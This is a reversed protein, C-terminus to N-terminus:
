VSVTIKRRVGRLDMEFEIEDFHESVRYVRNPDGVTIVTDSIHRPLLSLHYVSGDSNLILDTESIKAM